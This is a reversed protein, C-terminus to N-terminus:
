KSWPLYHQMVVPCYTRATEGDIVELDVVDVAPPVQVSGFDPLSGGEIAPKDSVAERLSVLGQAAEAVVRLVGILLALVVVVNVSEFQTRSRRCGNM